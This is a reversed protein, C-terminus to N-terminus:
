IKVLKTLGALGDRLSEPYHRAYRQTMIPTKHGLLIQVKYLDVGSRVLRIGTNRIGTNLAFIVIGKLWDSCAQILKKEDEFTLWRDRKNNSRELSVRNMPNAKCWEWERIAVNFARKMIDLQRHITAPKVGEAERNIKFKSILSPTVESLTYDGLFSVLGKIHNKCARYSALNSFYESEFKEIMERFTKEEGLYGKLGNEGQL